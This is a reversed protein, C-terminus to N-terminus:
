LLKVFFNSLFAGTGLGIGLMAVLLSAATGAEEGRVMQPGSMMCITALYGSSVSFMLMIMIYAVDSEFMVSTLNRQTPNM